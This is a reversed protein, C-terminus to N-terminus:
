SYLDEFFADVNKYAKSKQTHAGELAAKTEDNLMSYDISVAEKAFIEDLLEQVEDRTNKDLDFDIRVHRERGRTGKEYKIGTMTKMKKHILLKINLRLPVSYKQFVMKKVLKAADFLQM